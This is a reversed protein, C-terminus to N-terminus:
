EKILLIFKESLLNSLCITYIGSDLKSVDIGRNVISYSKIDVMRGQNDYITILDTPSLNDIVFFTTCPNPYGYFSVQEIEKVSVNNCVNFIEDIAVELINDVNQQFQPISGIVEIDPQIGQQEWNNGELDLYREPSIGFYWGNPLMKDFNDSFIGYSPEGIVTVCPIEKALMAFVDAASITGSSTLVVIPKDVFQTGEPSLSFSTVPEIFDLYSGERAQKTYVPTEETVLRNGLIRSNSDYGGFNFRVDIILASKNQLYNMATEIAAEFVANDDLENGNSFDDMSNVALYGISDNITGYAIKEDELNIYLGGDIYIDEIMDMMDYDYWDWLDGVDPGGEFENGNDDELYSHGDNLLSLLEELINYLEQDTTAGDIQSNFVDYQADWDVNVVPFIACWEKYTQWFVDFNIQPDNTEPTLDPLGDIEDFYIETGGTTTLKLVDNELSFNGMFNEDEGFEDNDLNYWDEYILSISTYDYVDVNDTTIDMVFGYGHSQWIGNFQQAIIISFSCILLLSLLIAKKM